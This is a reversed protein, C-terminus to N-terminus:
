LRVQNGLMPRIARLVLWLGACSALVIPWLSSIDRIRKFEAHGDRVEIFGLPTARAGGGGGGGGEGDKDMGGGGGGGWSVKAVPIVTVGESRIPEGFVASARARMGVLGLIREAVTDVPGIAAREAERIAEEADM